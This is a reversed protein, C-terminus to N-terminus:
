VTRVMGNWSELGSYAKIYSASSAFWNQSCRRRGLSAAVRRWEGEFGGCFDWGLARARLRRPYLPSESVWARDRGGEPASSLLAKSSVM